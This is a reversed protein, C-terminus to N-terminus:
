MEMETVPLTTWMKSRLHDWLRYQVLEWADKSLLPLDPAADPKAKVVKHESEVQNPEDVM